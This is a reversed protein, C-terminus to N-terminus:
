VGVDRSCLGSYTHLLMLVNPNTIMICNMFNRKYKCVCTCVHACVCVCLSLSLSLSLPLSLSCFCVGRIRLLSSLLLLVDM